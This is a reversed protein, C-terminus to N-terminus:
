EEDKIMEYIFVGIGITCLVLVFINNTNLGLTALILTATTKM